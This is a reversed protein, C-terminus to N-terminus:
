HGLVAQRLDSHKAHIYKGAALQLELHQIEDFEPALATIFAAREDYLSVIGLEDVRHWPNTVVLGSSLMRFDCSRDGKQQRVILGINDCFSFIAAALVDIDAITVITNAPLRDDHCLQYEFHILEARPEIAAVAM